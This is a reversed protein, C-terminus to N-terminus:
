WVDLIATTLRDPHQSVEQQKLMKMRGGSQRSMAEANDIQHSTIDTELPIIIGKKGFFDLEFLTGAGARGIVMDAASYLVQMENSFSFVQANIGANKYATRVRELETLGGGTQHLVFLPQKKKLEASVGPMVDNIFQSGQSGGVVLVIKQAPDIGLKKCAVEKSLKDKETFRVPYNGRVVQASTPFYRATEDFCITTKNAFRSIFRAASGPVVNLECIEIPIRLIWGIISVPVAIYGGTSFISTPDLRWLIKGITWTARILNILYNPWLWFSHPVNGLDITTHVAVEPAKGIISRDLPTDTSIFLIKAKPDAALAHRAHTLAPIIHGGSRGTTYCLYHMEQTSQRAARQQVHRYILLGGITLIVLLSILVGIFFLAFFRKYNM